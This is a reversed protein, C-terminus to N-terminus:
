SPFIKGKEYFYARMSKPRTWLSLITSRFGLIMGKGGLFLGIMGPCEFLIM